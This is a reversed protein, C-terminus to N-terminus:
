RMLESPKRGEINVMDVDAGNEILLKVVDDVKNAYALHLATSMRDTVDNIRAGSSLLLRILELGNKKAKASDNTSHHIVAYHLPTWLKSDRSTM